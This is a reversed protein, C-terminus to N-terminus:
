PPYVLLSVLSREVGGVVAAVDEDAAAAATGLVDIAGGVSIGTAGVVVGAVVVPIVERRM